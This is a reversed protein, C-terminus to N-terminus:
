SAKKAKSLIRQAGREIKREQPFYASRFHCALGIGWGLMPWQFWWGGPSFIDILFLATIVIIYSWLHPNFASRERRLWKKRAEELDMGAMEQTIAADLTDPTVGLERAIELLEKHTIAEEQGPRLARKLIRTVEDANYRKSRQDDMFNM